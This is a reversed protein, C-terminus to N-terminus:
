FNYGVWLYVFSGKTDAPSLGYGPYNQDSFRWGWDLRLVFGPSLPWRYSSGYSGILGRRQNDPYWARGADVFLAAQIDSFRFPVLPTGLV